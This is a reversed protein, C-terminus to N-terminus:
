TPMLRRLRQRAITQALQYSSKLRHICASRYRSRIRGCSLEHTSDSPTFSRAWNNVIALNHLTSPSQSLLAWEGSKRHNQHIALVSPSVDILGRGAHRAYWLVWNDVAPRGLLLCPMAQFYGRPFVFYDAGFAMPVGRAAALRRLEVEVNAEDFDLEVTIDLDTRHGIILADRRWRRVQGVAPTFDSLLIIDANVYCVDSASGSQEAVQVVSRLLPAGSSHSAIEPVHHVNFRQAVEAIGYESGVLIIQIVGRLKSWSSIANTQILAIHPDLFPKPASVLTLM